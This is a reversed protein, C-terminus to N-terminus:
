LFILVRKRGTTARDDLVQILRETPGTRAYTWTASDSRIVFPPLEAELSDREQSGRRTRTHPCRPSQLDPVRRSLKRLPGACRAGQRWNAGTAHSWGLAHHQPRGPRSASRRRLVQALVSGVAATAAERATGAGSSRVRRRTHPRESSPRAARLLSHHPPLPRPRSGRAHGLVRGAHLHDRGHTRHTLYRGYPAVPKRRIPPWKRWTAGVM